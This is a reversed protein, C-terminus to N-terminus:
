RAAARSKWSEVRELLARANARSEASVPLGDFMMALEDTRENGEMIASTTETRGGSENKLMAVHRDAFAAIQPLHSIVIVQHASTLGWLKEGVVQGSRGGVGVDIEDFVLTPTEDADSLISKLALMLRATEGGSAVRALPRLEEGANAALYFSVRDIGTSDVAVAEGDIRLGDDDPQYTFRVEFDARGMNLEHITQEVRTALDKAAEQRRSSLRLAVATLTERATAEERRLTDLDHVESELSEIEVQIEDGYAIIAIIDPGYKRKMGRILELREDIESLRDPEFQLVEAYDRLESTVEELLFLADRVRSAMSEVGRDLEVIADIAAEATRVRDLGGSETLTETAAGDLATYAEAATQALREANALRSREQRLLEDEGPQLNAEFIEESQFRLADLRQARVRQEEDFRALRQRIVNWARYDSALQHRLGLVGAFRDLLDLQASSRLLSLHDSQGHIDVLIEGLQTLAAATLARGNVRATSRGSTNIDRSLVLPDDAGVEVGVESLTARVAALTPMNALDFVAEVYASREGTRVFESSTRAGLVAGLADIVISKGAGTEGTLANFGAVFEIRTDRIVAFNRITLEALM